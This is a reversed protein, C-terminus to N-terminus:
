LLLAVKRSRHTRGGRIKIKTWGPGSVRYEAEQADKAVEAVNSRFTYNSVTIYVTYRSIMGLPPHDQDDM